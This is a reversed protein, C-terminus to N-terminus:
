APTLALRTPEDFLSRLFRLLEDPAFPKTLYYDVGEGWARWADEEDTAATVMVVPIRMGHARSRLLCLVDHGDLGPMLVDLVICDPAADAVSLLATFGDEAARVAYGETQLVDVILCHVDPGDDVVLINPPHRPV